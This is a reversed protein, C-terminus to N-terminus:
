RLPRKTPIGARRPYGAPTPSIKEIVVLYSQRTPLDVTEIAHLRGGLQQIAIEAAAVEEAAQPGKPALMRGGIRVLPLCYEVLVRLEAVARATVLDYSERHAPVHGLVEAREAIVQVANLGLQEVLQKLFAAKKQVSEILTLQMAPHVLKLVLGPFGAGSGIDACREPPKGWSRACRISDLFHREIIADTDEIATLNHQENALQLQTLYSDFQQLQTENLIIGWNAATTQLLNQQNTNM